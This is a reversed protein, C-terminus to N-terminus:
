VASLELFLVTSYEGPLIDQGIDWSLKTSVVPIGLKLGDPKIFIDVEDRDRCAVEVSEDDSIDTIDISAPLFNDEQMEAPITAKLHVNYEHSLNGYYKLNFSFGSERDETMTGIDVSNGNILYSFGGEPEIEFAFRDLFLAGAPFQVGYDDPINTVYPVERAFLSALSSIFLIALFSKKKMM